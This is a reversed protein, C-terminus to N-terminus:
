YITWAVEGAATIMVAKTKQSHDTNTTFEAGLVPLNRARLEEAVEVAKQVSSIDDPSGGVVFWKVEVLSDYAPLGRQPNFVGVLSDIIEGGGVKFNLSHLLANYRLKRDASRATLGVTICPGMHDTWIGADIMLWPRDYHEAKLGKGVEHLSAARARLDDKPVMPLKAFAPEGSVAEQLRRPLDREDLISGLSRSKDEKWAEDDKYFDSCAKVFDEIEPYNSMGAEYMKTLANKKISRVSNYFSRDESEREEATYVLTMELRWLDEARDHGVSFWQPKDDRNTAPAVEQPYIEGKERDVEKATWKPEEEEGEKEEKKEEKEKKEKEGRKRKMMRQILLGAGDAQQVVHVLEHGLLERDADSAPDYEGRRFFIDTGATVADSRLRLNLADASHDTHLRVAALDTGLGQEYRRRASGPLPRGEGRADLILRQIAPDIVEGTSRVGGAFRPSARKTADAALEEALRDAEREYRAGAPGLRLGPQAASAAPLQHAYRDDGPPAEGSKERLPRTATETYGQESTELTPARRLCRVPHADYDEEGARIARQVPTVQIAAPSAKPPVQEPRLGLAPSATAQTAKAEAEQAFRDAPDSVASRADYGSDAVAGQRQQVLHTLRGAMTRKDAGGDGAVVYSDTPTASPRAPVRSPPLHRARRAQGGDPLPSRAPTATVGPVPVRSPGLGGVAQLTNAHTGPAPAAVAHDSNAQARKPVVFPM